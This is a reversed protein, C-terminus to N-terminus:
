EEEDISLLKAMKASHSDIVHSYTSLILRGGDKHGQWQSVTKVDVGRQLARTVFMRRLSRHDFHPLGLRECAASMSKKASRIKFVPGQSVKPERDNLRELLSRLQPFIPIQYGTKTKQRFLTIKEQKFDIHEWNLHITEANGVGALGMFEVFDASEEARANRPQERISRVINQFQEFTPTLRIPDERKKAKISAAPNEALLRDKVAHDLVARIFWLHANYTCPGFDYSALWKSITSPKIDRIRCEARSPHPWDDKIRDSIQKKQEMTKPAQKLGELYSDCLAALTIRGAGPDVRELKDREDRLLRKAEALNDTKLSKKTLKGNHRIFAYYRDNPM